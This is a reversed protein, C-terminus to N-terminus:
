SIKQWNVPQMDIEILEMKIVKWENSVKELYVQVEIPAIKFFIAYKSNRDIHVVASVTITAENGKVEIVKSTIKIKEAFPREFVRKCRKILKDKSDHFSDGYNDSVSGDIFDIDRCVVADRCMDILLDAKEYDTKFIHDVSIGSLIILTPILIKVFSKLNTLLVLAIFCIAAITIFLVPSEFVDFM